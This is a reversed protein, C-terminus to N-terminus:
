EDNEGKAIKLIEKRYQNILSASKEKIIKITSKYLWKNVNGGTVEIDIDNTTVEEELEEILKQKRTELKKVKNNAKVKERVVDLYEKDKYEEIFNLIQRMAVKAINVRGGVQILGDFVVAEMILCASEIDNGRLINSRAKEIEEKSLM